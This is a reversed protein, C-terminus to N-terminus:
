YLITLVTNYEERVGLRRSRGTPNRGLGEQTLDAHHERTYDFNETEQKDEGM